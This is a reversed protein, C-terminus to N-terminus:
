QRDTPDALGILDGVGGTTPSTEFFEVLFGALNNIGAPASPLTRMYGWWTLGTVSAQDALTFGDAISSNGDASGGSARILEAAAAAGARIEDVHAGGPSITQHEVLIRLHDRFWPESDAAFSRVDSLANPTVSM